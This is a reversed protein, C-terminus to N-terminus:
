NRRVAPREEEWLSPAPRTGFWAYGKLQYQDTGRCTSLKTLLGLTELDDLASCVVGRSYGTERMISEIGPKAVRHRDVHLALCLFVSLKAGKLARLAKKRFAVKFKIYFDTWVLSTAGAGREERVAEIGLDGIRASRDLSAAADSEPSASRAEERSAGAPSAGAPSAGCPNAGKPSAVFEVTTDPGVVRHVTRQIVPLLRSQIWDLGYTHRVAVTLARDRQAVVQSGRLWTDFTARTMQLQLQDLVTSWAKQAAALDAPPPMLCYDEPYVLM